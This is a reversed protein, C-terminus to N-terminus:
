GHTLRGPAYRVFMAVACAVALALVIAAYLIRGTRVAGPVGGTM